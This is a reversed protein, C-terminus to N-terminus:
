LGRCSEVARGHPRQMSSAAVSRLVFALIRGLVPERDIESAFNQGDWIQGIGALKLRLKALTPKLEVARPCQAMSPCIGASWRHGLSAFHPWKELM